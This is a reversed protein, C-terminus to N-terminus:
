NNANITAKLSEMEEYGFKVAHLQGEKAIRITAQTVWKPSIQWDLNM